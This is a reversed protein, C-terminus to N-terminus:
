SFKSYFLEEKWMNEIDTNINNKEKKNKKKKKVRQNPNKMWLDKCNISTFSISARRNAFLWM